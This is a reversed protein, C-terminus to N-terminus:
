EESMVGMVDFEVSDNGKISDSISRMKLKFTVEYEKGVEWDKSEPIDKVKLYLCPYHPEEESAKMEMKYTEPKIYRMKEAM